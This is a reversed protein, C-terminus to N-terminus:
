TVFLFMPWGGGPEHIHVTFGTKLVVQSIPVAQSNFVAVETGLGIYYM